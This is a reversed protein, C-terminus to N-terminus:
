IRFLILVSLVHEIFLPIFGHLAQKKDRLFAVSAKKCLQNQLLQKVVTLDEPKVSKVM